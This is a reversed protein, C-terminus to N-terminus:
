MVEGYVNNAVAFSFAGARGASTADLCYLQVLDNKNVVIDETFTAFANQNHTRLIGKPSGNIYIQGQVNNTYNARIAFSVRVSGSAKMKVEKVKTMPYSMQIERTDMVVINNGATIPSVDAGGEGQLFFNGNSYRLTYVSNAKLETVPLGNSRLIPVDGLSNVNISTPADASDANITLVLGMGNKYSIPPPSLTVSYSNGDNTTTVIAPHAVYDDEHNNLDSELALIATTLNAAVDGDLYTEISKFWEKFADDYQAFLNTTDIEDILGKVVGCLEKNFRQDIIDAQTITTTGANIPVDALALEYYDADRQLAPAVPTSAFAGKKILVEIKRELHNLRMVVRDIRKLVGDALDHQLVYDSDNVLFYGNIWGKGASVKTTMNGNEFVQLNTSPNPFVGNGIFSAFFEAFFSADYLRDDDIDNFFGSRM